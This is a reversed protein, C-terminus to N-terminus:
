KKIRVETNLIRVVIKEGSMEKDQSRNEINLIRV